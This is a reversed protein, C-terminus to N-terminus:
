RPLRLREAPRILDPDPGVVARNAAYIERWRRDIAADDVPAPGAPSARQHALDRAAIRWLCDGPQVTVVTVVMGPRRHRDDRLAGAVVSAVTLAPTPRAGPTGPAGRHEATAAEAAPLALGAVTAAGCAVLVARRLAAPALRRRGATPRPVGTRAAEVVVSAVALWLWGAAVVAVTACAGTLRDDFGGGSPRAAPLLWAVLGAAAASALALVTGCRLLRSM